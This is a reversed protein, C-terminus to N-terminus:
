GAAGFCAALGSALDPYLPEVGLLERMKRNDLRRSERMYSLMGPSLRAAAEAMPIKPPRPLGALDAVADFYEAMTGPEGDSVNFVQGAVPRQMAAVCVRVLDDEHIRNTYPAQDARVLPLGDRIRALPLRDPGYIGAVRLVVLEGGREASWARLRREADLRRRARDAGPNEPRSEDVWAGACDGYVGTTSIYVVRRPDGDRSFADVLRAVRPDTDGREPPPALYFLDSGGLPLRPLPDRDLDAQLAAIGLDALAHASAAGRVLGQVAVGAALYHRALRRGVDGCGIILVSQERKGATFDM